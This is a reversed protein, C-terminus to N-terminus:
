GRAQWYDVLGTSRIFAKFRETKRFPAFQPFWLYRMVGANGSGMNLLREPTELVRDPASIYAYVFSLDGELEPLAQPAKVKTPASRLLRAADEVSRRTVQNQEKIAL